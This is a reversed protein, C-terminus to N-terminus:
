TLLRVPSNMDILQRDISRILDRVSSTSQTEGHLHITIGQRPVGGAGEGEAGGSPGGGVPAVSAHGPSARRIAAIQAAGAAAVAAANLFPFPGALAKTIGQATNIGAEMIAFAKAIKAQRENGNEFLQALSGFIGAITSVAMQRDAIMQEQAERNIRVEEDAKWKAYEVIEQATRRATETEDESPPLPAGPPVFTTPLGRVGANIENIQDIITQIGASPYNDVLTQLEHQLMDLRGQEMPVANPEGTGFFAKVREWTTIVGQAAVGAAAIAIRVNHWMDLFFGVVRLAGTIVSTIIDGFGQSGRAADGFGNAVATLLPSLRVAIQNGIGTFVGKIRTWADNAEEVRAADVDSIAIGFGEVEERASRIADGGEAILNFVESQRVGLQRLVDATQQSNLGMDRIRDAIAAFRDDVDMGILDDVTFGLRELAAAAPGSGTRAVEGLVQNFRGMASSLTAADVGALDAAHSLAQVGAVTGGLQRALKAQSDILEFSESVLNSIARIGAYAAFYGLVRNRLNAFGRDLSRQLTSVRRAGREFHASDMGLNVRLAGIVASPM